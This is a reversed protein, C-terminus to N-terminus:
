GFIKWYAGLYISKPDPIRFFGIGSGPDRIWPDFLCRIGSGPDLDAVSYKLLFSTHLAPPPLPPPPPLRSGRVAIAPENEAHPTESFQIAPKAAAHRKKQYRYRRPREFKACVWDRVRRTRKHGRGVAKSENIMYRYWSMKNTCAFCQEIFVINDYVHSRLSLPYEITLKKAGPKKM